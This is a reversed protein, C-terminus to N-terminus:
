VTYEVGFETEYPDPKGHFVVISTDTPVVWPLDPQFYDEPYRVAPSGHRTGGHMIEWKYSMCWNWPWWHKGGTRKFWDTLYDQDGRFQRVISARNTCFNHYIDTHKIPTFRIVSSNSISYDRIFM